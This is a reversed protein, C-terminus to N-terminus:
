KVLSAKSYSYTGTGHMRLSKQNALRCHLLDSNISQYFPHIFSNDVRRQRSISQDKHKLKLLDNRLTSSCFPHYITVRPETRAQVYYQVVLVYTAVYEIYRLIKITCWDDSDTSSGGVTSKSRYYRATGYRAASVIKTRTSFSRWWTM